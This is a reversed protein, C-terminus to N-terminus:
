LNCLQRQVADDFTFAYTDKHQSRCNAAYQAMVGRKTIVLLGKANVAEALQVASYALQQKAKDRVLQDSFKLGPTKESARVVRDLYEICKLPYKGM